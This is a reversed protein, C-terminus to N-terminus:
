MFFRPTDLKKSFDLNIFFYIFISIRNKQFIRFIQPYGSIFPIGKHKENTRFDLIIAQEENPSQKNLVNELNVNLFGNKKEIKCGSIWHQIKWYGLSAWLENFLPRLATKVGNKSM